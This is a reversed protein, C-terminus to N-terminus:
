IVSLYSVELYLLEEDNEQAKFSDKDVHLSMVVMLTCLSHVKDM